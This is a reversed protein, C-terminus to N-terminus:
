GAGLGCADLFSVITKTAYPRNGYFAVEKSVYKLCNRLHASILFVIVIRCKHNTYVHCCALRDHALPHRVIILVFDVPVISASIASIM